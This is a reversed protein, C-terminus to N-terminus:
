IMLLSTPISALVGCAVGVVVAMADTSMRNGIVVALAVSFLIGIM